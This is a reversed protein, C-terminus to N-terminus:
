EQYYWNANGCSWCSKTPCGSTCRNTFICQTGSTDRGMVDEFNPEDRGSSLFGSLNGSFLDSASVEKTKSKTYVVKSTSKLWIYTPAVEGWVEKPANSTFVIDDDDVDVYRNFDLNLYIRSKKPSDSDGIIGLIFKTGPNDKLKKTIPNPKIEKNTM